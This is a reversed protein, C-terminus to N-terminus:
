APTPADAQSARQITCALSDVTAFPSVQLRFRRSYSAKALEKRGENEENGETARILAGRACAGERVIRLESAVSPWRAVALTGNDEGIREM